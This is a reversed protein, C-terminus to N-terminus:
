LVFELNIANFVFLFKKALFFFYLFFFEEQLDEKLNLFMSLPIGYVSVNFIM